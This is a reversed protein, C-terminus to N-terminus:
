RPGRQNQHVATTGPGWAKQHEQGLVDERMWSDLFHFLLGIPNLDGEQLNLELLRAPYILM